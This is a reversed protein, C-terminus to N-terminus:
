SSWFFPLDPLPRNLHRAAAQLLCRVAEQGEEGAAVSFDNVFMDIHSQIVEPAMEQANKTVYPWVEEPHARAFLLSQRIKEEFLAAAESGLDRRMVIGGLPLPLGTDREWWAGLDLVLRLGYLPYTFRGEHIIVGADVEGRSIAPMIQDFVMERLPGRHFGTMKLLLNATTMRGPIALRLDRLDEPSLSERAVVLPGCGRGIAGGSGLLWYSELFHLLACISIKTIDLSAQLARQNLHEVDALSIELRYPHPSVAGSALGCFIYTDNPCPSYGLSLLQTM